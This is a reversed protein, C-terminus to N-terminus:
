EQPNNKIYNQMVKVTMFSSLPLSLVLAIGFIWPWTGLWHDLFYSPIGLLAVTGVTAALVRSTIETYHKFARMMISKQSDNKSDMAITQSM